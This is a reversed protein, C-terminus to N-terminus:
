QKRRPRAFLWVQSPHWVDDPNGYRSSFWPVAGHGDLTLLRLVNSDSIPNMGGVRCKIDNCQMRALAIAEAPCLDFGLKHAQKCIESFPASKVFGLEAGSVEWLDVDIRKSIKKSSIKIKRLAQKVYDDIMKGSSMIAQQLDANNSYMGLTVRMFFRGPIVLKESILIGRLNESLGQGDKRLKDAVEQPIDRPLARLVAM